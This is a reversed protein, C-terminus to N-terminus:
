AMGLQYRAFRKVEITDGTEKETAKETETESETEENDFIMNLLPGCSTFTASIIMFALILSMIKKVNM